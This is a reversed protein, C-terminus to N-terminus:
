RYPAVHFRKPHTPSSVANRESDIMRVYNRKIACNSGRICFEIITTDLFLLM